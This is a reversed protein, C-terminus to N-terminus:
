RDIPLGSPVTDPIGLRGAVSAEDTLAELFAIIDAIEADDLQPGPAPASALLPELDPGDLVQWDDFGAPVVFQTRDYSILSEAPNLHHRIVGELTAYAGAHSYPGTLAVNRLSPTRFAYADAPDGTVRLRGEDRAHSEFSAAKGPGAQPMALAHFDHDTQFPGSHCEACGAEGYFLIRGREAADPLPTGDRLYADFPSQDSRWELAMFEAVADSIDTFGIDRTGLVAEFRDAYGPLAAVRASILAWAGQEGTIFGQRVAQSIDNESYHGAMEDDSLVPFMTQASLVGSFGSVMDQGLPTRIGGPRTEDAELRGDHFMVTFERAGLNFLAPANRPIRQEPPNDTSAVREPGLGQGGEGLSLAVGDATAHDPHHCTACSITRNGSLIPDFFLDRGIEALAHNIPFYDADTPASFEQAGAPAALLSCLLIRKM